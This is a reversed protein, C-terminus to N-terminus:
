PLRTLAERDAQRWNVRLKALASSAGATDGAAAKARALGLLAESRGPTLRLIAEYLPVAEAARGDAILESGLLESAFVREPPGVFAGLQRSTRLM